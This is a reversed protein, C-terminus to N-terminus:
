CYGFCFYEGRTEYDAHNENNKCKFIQKSPKCGM